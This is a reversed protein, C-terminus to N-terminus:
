VKLEGLVNASGSTSADPAIAMLIGSNVAAILNTTRGYRYLNELPSWVLKMGRQGMEGLQGETLGTAHIGVVQPRLLDLARLQEFERGALDDIGEALHLFYARLAGSDFQSKLTAADTQTISSIPLVNDRVHDECFMNQEVNRAWTRACALDPTG